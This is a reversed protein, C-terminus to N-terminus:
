NSDNAVPSFSRVPSSIKLLVPPFFLGGEKAGSFFIIKEEERRGILLCCEQRASTREPLSPPHTTSSQRRGEAVPAEHKPTPNGKRVLPHPPLRLFCRGLGGLFRTRSFECAWDHVRARWSRKKGQVYVLEWLPPLPLHLLSPTSSVPFFFPFNALKFCTPYLEYLM